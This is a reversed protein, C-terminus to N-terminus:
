HDAVKQNLEKITTVTELYFRHITMSRDFEAKEKETTRIRIVWIDIQM